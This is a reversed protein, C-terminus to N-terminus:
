VPPQAYTGLRVTTGHENVLQIYSTHYCHRALANHCVQAADHVLSSCISRQGSDAVPLSAVFVILCVRNFLRSCSPSTSLCRTQCPSVLHITLSYLVQLTCVRSSYTFVLISSISYSQLVAGFHLRSDHVYIWFELLSRVSPLSLSTLAV